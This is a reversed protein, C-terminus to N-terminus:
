KYNYGNVYTGPKTYANNYLYIFSKSHSKKVTEPANYKKSDAIFMVLGEYKHVNKHLNIGTKTYVDININATVSIQKKDISKNHM